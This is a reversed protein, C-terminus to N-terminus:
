TVSELFPMEMPLAFGGISQARVLAPDLRAALEALRADGPAAFDAIEILQVRHAPGASWFAVPSLRAADLAAKLRSRSVDEALEAVILSHDAGTPEPALQAVALAVREDNRPPKLFPLRAIVQPVKADGSLLARWWPAPQNEEPWPVVAVSATGDVV